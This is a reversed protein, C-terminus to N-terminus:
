NLLHTFIAILIPPISGATAGGLAAQTKLKALEVRIMVMDEDLKKLGNGHEELKQLVLKQYERWGNLEPTERNSM